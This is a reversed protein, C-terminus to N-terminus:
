NIISNCPSKISICLRIFILIQIQICNSALIPYVVFLIVCSISAPQKLRSISRFCCGYFDAELPNMKIYIQFSIFIRYLFNSIIFLIFYFMFCLVYELLWHLLLFYSMWKFCLMFKFINILKFVNTKRKTKKLFGKRKEM